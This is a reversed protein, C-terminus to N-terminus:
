RKEIGLTRQVIAARDSVPIDPLPVPAYGLEEYAARVLEKIKLSDDRKFTRGETERVDAVSLTECLFVHDYRNERAYTFVVDPVSCGVYRCFGILDVVGRDLFALADGAPLSAELQMQRTAIGEYFACQNEARWAWFEMGHLASNEQIVQFGAEPITVFGQEAFHALLTTKGAHTGGAFVIKKM